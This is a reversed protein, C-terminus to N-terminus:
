CTCGDECAVPTTCREGGLISVERYRPIGYRRGDTDTIYVVSNTVHPGLDQVAAVTIRQSGNVYTTDGTTLTHAPVDPLLAM